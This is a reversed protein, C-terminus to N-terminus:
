RPGQKERTTHSDTGVSVNWIWLFNRSRKVASLTLYIIWMECIKGPAKYSAGIWHRFSLWFIHMVNPIMDIKNWMRLITEVNVVGAPVPLIESGPDWIGASGGMWLIQIPVLNGWPFSPIQVSRCNRSCYWLFTWIWFVKDTSSNHYDM